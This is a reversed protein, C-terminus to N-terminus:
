STQAKAGALLWYYHYFHFLFLFKSPKMSQPYISLRSIMTVAVGYTYFLIIIIYCPKSEEAEEEREAM